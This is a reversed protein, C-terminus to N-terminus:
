PVRVFWNSREPWWDCQCTEGDAYLTRVVNTGYRLTLANTESFKRILRSAFATGMDPLTMAVDNSTTDAGIAYVNPNLKLSM